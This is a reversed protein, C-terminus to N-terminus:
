RQPSNYEEDSVPQLWVVPAKNPNTGIALHIMESDPAAGHWHLINPDCKIVDGKRLERVPKGKEGYRGKGSTILLIQGGPHYHWNTRAGQEFTVNGISTNFTTDNTVLMQLWATGTFNNNSIKTGKLFVTSASMNNSESLSINATKNLVSQLVLDATRGEKEGVKTQFVSVISKLQEETFGSNLGVNFHSRLQSETGGLSALVSITVIERTKWDLVDRSFIDAFLHEKLFTDIIPVFKQPAGTATSGTLKTQVDKGVNFKSKSSVVKSPQKGRVDNIGKQKRENVIAELASIANLSRPFGAYAYLHVLVEKTENISLGADLGNNLAQKLETLDGKAAFAAIPIISQQKKDLTDTTNLKQQANIETVFLLLLVLLWFTNRPKM